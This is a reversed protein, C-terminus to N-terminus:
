RDHDGRLERSQNEILQEIALGVARATTVAADVAAMRFAAWVQPSILKLRAFQDARRGPERARDTGREADREVFPTGNLTHELAREVAFGLIEGLPARTAVAMAKIARWAEPRVEVHTPQVFWAREVPQTEHNGQNGRRGVAATALRHAGSRPDFTTALEASAPQDLAGDIRAAASLDSM